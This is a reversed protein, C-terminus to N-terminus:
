NSRLSQIPSIPACTRMQGPLPIYESSNTVGHVPTNISGGAAVGPLLQCCSAACSRDVLRAAASMSTPELQATVLRVAIKSDVSALM